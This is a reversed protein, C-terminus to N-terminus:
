QPITLLIDRIMDKRADDMEWDLVYAAFSEAWDESANGKSYDTVFTAGKKQTGYGKWNLKYFPIVPDDSLTINGAGSFDKSMKRSKGNLMKWDVVHGCEHVFLWADDTKDESIYITNGNKETWGFSGHLRSDNVPVFVTLALCLTLISDM